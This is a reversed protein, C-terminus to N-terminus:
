HAHFYYYARQAARDYAAYVGRDEKSWHYYLGNTITVRDPGSLDSSFSRYSRITYPATIPKVPVNAAESEMSGIGSDIWELFGPQDISFEYALTGRIGRAYCVDRAGAPLDFPAADRSVHEAFQSPLSRVAHVMCGFMFAIATFAALLERMTFRKGGGSHKGTPIVAPLQQLWRFNMWAFLSASVGILLLVLLPYWHLEDGRLLTEGLTVAFAFFAYGGAICLLIGAAFAANRKRRFTGRYQQVALVAPLPFLITGSFWYCPDWRVAFTSLAVTVLWLSATITLVSCAQLLLSPRPPTSATVERDVRAALPQQLRVVGESEFRGM